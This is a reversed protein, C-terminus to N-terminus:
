HPIMKLQYYDKAFDENKLINLLHTHPFIGTEPIIASNIDLDTDMNTKAKRHPICVGYPLRKKRQGNDKALLM